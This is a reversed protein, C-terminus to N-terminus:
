EDDERKLSDEYKKMEDEFILQDHDDIM